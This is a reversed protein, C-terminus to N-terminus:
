PGRPRLRGEELLTLSLSVAHCKLAWQLDSHSATLFHLCIFICVKPLSPPPQLPGTGVAQCHLYNPKQATILFREPGPTDAVPPEPPLSEWQGGRM